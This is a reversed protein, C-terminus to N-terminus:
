AGGQDSFILIAFSEFVINELALSPSKLLNIGYQGFILRSSNGFQNEFASIQLRTFYASTKLATLLRM